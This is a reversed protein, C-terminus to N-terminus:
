NLDLNYLYEINLDWQLENRDAWQRYVVNIIKIATLRDLNNIEMFRKFARESNGRIKALGYHKVEHCLPCLSQFSVLRQTNPSEDYEWVEHCEVPHRNGRGGCIECIFNSRQYIYRRIKNWESAKINSRVNSWFCTRPVLEIQLKLSRHLELTLLQEHSLTNQKVLLKKPYKLYQKYSNSEYIAITLTGYGYTSLEKVIYVLDINYKEIKRILRDQEWKYLEGIRSNNHCLIWKKHEVKIISLEDGVNINNKLKKFNYKGLNSLHTVFFARPKLPNKSM